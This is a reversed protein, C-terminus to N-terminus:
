WHLSNDSFFGIIRIKQMVPHKATGLLGSLHLAVTRQVTKILCIEACIFPALVGFFLYQTTLWMTNNCMMWTETSLACYKKSNM